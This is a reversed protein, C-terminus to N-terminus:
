FIYQFTYQFTSSNGWFKSHGGQYQGGGEFEEDDNDCYDMGLNSDLFCQHTGTSTHIAFQVNGGERVSLRMGLQFYMNNFFFMPESKSSLLEFDADSEYSFLLFNYINYKKGRPLLTYFSYQCLYM